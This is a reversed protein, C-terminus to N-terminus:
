TIVISRTRDSLFARLWVLGAGRMRAVGCIDFAFQAIKIEHIIRLNDTGRLQVTGFCVTSRKGLVPRHLEVLSSIAAASFGAL